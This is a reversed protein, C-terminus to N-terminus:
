WGPGYLGFEMAPDRPDWGNGSSQSREGITRARSLLQRGLDLQEQEWIVLAVDIDAKADTLCEALKWADAAAKATAAATHPRVTFAADGTLCARGVVMRPVDVDVVVQVFPQETRLVVEAVAAPLEREAAVRLEEVFRQAISGPPMSLARRVGATDTLLAELQQNDVNRYWVFNMLRQGSAVAGALSPIPYILIHSSGLLVYTLADHLRSYAPGSLEAEPVMGRWAVYGAYRPQSDPVLQSRAASSIGDACVLLDFWGQDSDAFTFSVGDSRADIQGIARGLHYRQHGFRDLLARYLTNYATFRYDRPYEHVVAGNADLYRRLGAYTSLREIDPGGRQSFYRLTMPHVVIGAGRSELESTSREYVDVDCGLDRLLLGATLGGLSGGMVAVRPWHNSDTM